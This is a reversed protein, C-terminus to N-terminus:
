SSLRDGKRAVLDILKASFSKCLGPVDFNKNIHECAQKLRAIHAARSEKWAEPPTTEIHASCTTGSNVCRTRALDRLGARGM